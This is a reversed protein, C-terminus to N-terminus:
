IHMFEVVKFFYCQKTRECYLDPIAEKFVKQGNENNFESQFEKEPSLHEMVSVWENEILSTKHSSKGYEDNIAYIKEKNLFFLKFFNLFLDM